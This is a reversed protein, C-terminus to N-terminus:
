IKRKSERLARAKELENRLSQKEIILQTLSAEDNDIEAKEIKANLNKLERKIKLEKLSALMDMIQEKPNIDTPESMLMKTLFEVLKQNELRSLVEGANWEKNKAARLIEKWLVKTYRGVFFGEHIRPLVLEILEPHAMILVLFKIENSIERLIERNLVERNLIGKEQLGSSISTEGYDETIEKENPKLKYAAAEFRRSKGIKRLLERRTIYEKLDLAESVKKIFDNILIDNKMNMVHDSLSHLIVIKENATYIKKENVYFKKIFELGEISKEVLYEFEPLEYRDFFDAPDVGSPLEVIYPDIGLRHAISISRLAAKKGAEDPDFCLYIKETFKLLFSLQEETLATGLPAVTNRVGEKHLRIVDLYGEVVIAARKKRIEKEAVSFGYLNRGKRFVESESTNIYKPQDEEEEFIRGGFGICRGISDLIPFIIRNRFRDYYGTSTKRKIVLGAREVLEPRFGRSTLYNLMFDWSKVAYGLKFTKVSELDIKRKILYDLAKRGEPNFLKGRFVEMAIENIRYIVKSSAQDGSKEAYSKISIGVKEALYEVAEPFTLGRIKMIFSFVNGGAGCGFCHFIDKKPSVVFSPTKETHFPCLGKYNEGSPKLAVYESIVDVIDIKEKIREILDEPIYL